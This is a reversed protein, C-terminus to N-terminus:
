LKKILLQNQMNLDEKMKASRNPNDRTSMDKSYIKAQEIYAMTAFDWHLTKYHLKQKLISLIYAIGLVLGDDYLFAKAPIKRNVQEKGRTMHEVFNISLVPIIM